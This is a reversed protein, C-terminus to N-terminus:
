CENNFHKVIKMFVNRFTHDHTVILLLFESSSVKIQVTQEYYKTNELLKMMAEFMKNNKEWVNYQWLTM